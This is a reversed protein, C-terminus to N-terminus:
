LSVAIHSQFDYNSVRNEGSVIPLFEPRSFSADLESSEVSCKVKMGVVLM